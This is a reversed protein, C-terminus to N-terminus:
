VRKNWKTVCDEVSNGLIIAGCGGASEQCVINYIYHEVGDEDIHLFSPYITDMIDQTNLDHGCFPCPLLDITDM